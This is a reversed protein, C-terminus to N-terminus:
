CKIKYKFYEIMYKCCIFMLLVVFVSILVPIIGSSFALYVNLKSIMAFFIPIYLLSWIKIGIETLEHFKYGKSSFYNSILMLLIMAIGIGGVDVNLGTIYGISIGIFEGIIVCLSVLSIGYIIM